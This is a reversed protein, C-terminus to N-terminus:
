YFLDTQFTGPRPFGEPRAAGAGTTVEQVGGGKGRPVQINFQFTGNREHIVTNQGTPKYEVYSCSRDQEGEGFVIRNKSKVM